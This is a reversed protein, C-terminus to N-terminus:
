FAYSAGLALAFRPVLNVENVYQYIPLQVFSYLGLRESAQVRIGPTFYLWIGGSSDVQNGKFTDHPSTRFNLQTSVSVTENVTYGLGGNVITQNGFKYDLNNETNFQYSGSFFADLNHPIIQYSYFLSALFDYSGTGPMITPENIGGESSRLKYEGTPLKLGGGIVLLDKTRIALAYRGTIRMDGLGSAGDERTFFEESTGVENWHEHSRNNMLPISVQLTFRESVGYGVDVQMLENITRIERHHAAEIKGTEFNIGPVLAENTGSSGKQVDDMPIYRYSIDLTMQGKNSIGEQTGTVLFCNAAGCSAWLDSVTLITGFVSFFCLTFGVIFGKRMLFFLTDM